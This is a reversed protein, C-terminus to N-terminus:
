FDTGRNHKGNLQWHTANHLQKVNRCVAKCFIIIYISLKDGKNKKNRKRLYTKWLAFHLQSSLKMSTAGNGNWFLLLDCYSIWLGGLLQAKPDEPAWNQEDWEMAWSSAGVFNIHVWCRKELSRFWICGEGVRGRCSECIYNPDGVSMLKLCCGSFFGITMALIIDIAIIAKTSTDRGM